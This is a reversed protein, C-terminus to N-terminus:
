DLQFKQYKIQDQVKDSDHRKMKREIQFETLPKTIKTSGDM